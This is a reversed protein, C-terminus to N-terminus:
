VWSLTWLFSTQINGSSHQMVPITTTTTTTTTCTVAAKCKVVLCTQWRVSPGSQCQQFVKHAANSTESRGRVRSAFSSTHMWAVNFTSTSQTRAPGCEHIMTWSWSVWRTSRNPDFARTVILHWVKAKLINVKTPPTWHKATDGLM